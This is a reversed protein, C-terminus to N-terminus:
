KRLKTVTVVKQFTEKSMITLASGTDVVGQLLVHQVSVEAYGPHSGKDEM